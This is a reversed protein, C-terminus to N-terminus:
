QIFFVANVRHVTKSPFFVYQAVYIKRKSQQQVSRYLGMEDVLEIAASRMKKGPGCTAQAAYCAAGLPGPNTPPLCAGEDDWIRRLSTPGPDWNHTSNRVPMILLELIKVGTFDMFIKPWLFYPNAM